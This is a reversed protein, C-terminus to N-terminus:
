AAIHYRKNRFSRIDIEEINSEHWENEFFRILLTDVNKLLEEITKYGKRQTVKLFEKIQSALILQLFVDLAVEEIEIYFELLIQQTSKDPQNERLSCFMIYFICRITLDAIQPAYKSSKSQDFGFLGKLEQFIIEIFWRRLYLKLIEPASKDLDTSIIVRFQKVKPYKYFCMTVEVFPTRNVVSKSSTKDLVMVRASKYKVGTQQDIIWKGARQYIEKITMLKEKYLYQQKDRKIMAVLNIGKPILKSCVYKVSKDCSYWSDWLVYKFKFKRHLARSILDMAILIKSKKGMRERQNTHTGKRYFIKVFRNVKLKGIKLEFDLPIALRGISLASMVVQYGKYHVKQCHDIFWAINEVKKGCKKKSTDDIILVPEENKNNVMNLKICKAAVRYHLRRWNYWVNNLMDNLPTKLNERNFMFLGANVSNSRELILLLMQYLMELPSYGKEKTLGSSRLLNELRFRHFLITVNSHVLQESKVQSFVARKRYEMYVENDQKKKIILYV